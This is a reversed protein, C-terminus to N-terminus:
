HSPVQGPEEVKKVGYKSARRCTWQGDPLTVDSHPNERKMGFIHMTYCTVDGDRESGFGRDERDARDSAPLKIFDHSAITSPAFWDSSFSNAAAPSSSQRLPDSAGCVSVLGCLLVVLLGSNRM